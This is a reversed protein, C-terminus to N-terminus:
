EIDRGETICNGCIQLGMDIRFGNYEGGGFMKVYYNLVRTSDANFSHM